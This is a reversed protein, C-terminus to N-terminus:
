DERYRDLILLPDSGEPLDRFVTDRDVKKDATYTEPKWIQFTDGSALFYAESDAELGIKDRLKKPLVIRGTGDVNAEVSKGNFIEEMYIRDPSGRPIRDIAADVEDIAEMTYCELFSRTEDGYVIVLNAPKGDVWDPDGSEIVRRFNAPISM